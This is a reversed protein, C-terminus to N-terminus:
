LCFILFYHEFHTKKISILIQIHILIMCWSRSTIVWSTMSFAIPHFGGNQMLYGFGTYIDYLYLCVGM